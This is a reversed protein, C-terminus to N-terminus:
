YSIYKSLVKDKYCELSCDGSFCPPVPAVSNKEDSLGINRVVSQTNIIIPSTVQKIPSAKFHIKVLFLSHSSDNLMICLNCHRLFPISKKTSQVCHLPGSEM